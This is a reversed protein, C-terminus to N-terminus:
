KSLEKILADAMRISSAAWAEYPLPAEKPNWRIGEPCSALCGQMAMAAFYERKTLGKHFFALAEVKGLLEPDNLIEDKVIIANGDHAFAPDNPNIPPM